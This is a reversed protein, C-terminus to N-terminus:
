QQPEWALGLLGAERRRRVAEPSPEAHFYAAIILRAKGMMYQGVLAGAHTGALDARAARYAAEDAGSYVLEAGDAAYVLYHVAPEVVM